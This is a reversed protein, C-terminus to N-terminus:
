CCLGSFDGRQSRIGRLRDDYGMATVLANITAEDAADTAVGASVCDDLVNILQETLAAVNEQTWAKGTVGIEFSGSQGSGSTNILIKGQRFSEGMVYGQASILAERLTAGQAKAQEAVQRLFARKLSGPIAVENGM